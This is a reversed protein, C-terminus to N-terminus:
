QATDFLWQATDSPRQLKVCSVHADDFSPQLIGFPKQPKDVPTHSTDLHASADDFPV